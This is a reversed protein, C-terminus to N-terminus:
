PPYKAYYLQSAALATQAVSLLVSLGGFWLVAWFTYWQLPDRRDTWLDKLVSPSQRASFQELEKLRMGFIPFDIVTNYVSQELLSADKGIGDLCSCPWLEPSLARIQKGLAEGCLTDLLHDTYGADRALAKQRSRYMKRSARSQGFIVRYSLLIEQMMEKLAVNHSDLFDRLM